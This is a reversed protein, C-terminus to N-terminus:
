APSRRRIRVHVADHVVVEDVGLPALEVLAVIRGPQQRLREPRQERLVADGRRREVPHAGFAGPAAAAARAVPLAEVLLDGRLGLEILHEGPERARLRARPEDGDPEPAGVRRRVLHPHLRRRHAARQERLVCASPRRTAPSSARPAKAWVVSRITESWPIAGTRRRMSRAAARREAPTFPSTSPAPPIAVIRTSFPWPKTSRATETARPSPSSAQGRSSAGRSSCARWGRKPSTITTAGTPTAIWDARLVGM